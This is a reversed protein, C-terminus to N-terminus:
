EPLGSRRLYNAFRAADAEHRFPVIRMHWKITFKLYIELL